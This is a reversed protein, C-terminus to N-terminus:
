AAVGCLKRLILEVTEQSRARVDADPHNYAREQAEKLCQMLMEHTM